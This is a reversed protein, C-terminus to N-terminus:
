FFLESRLTFGLEDQSIIEHQIRGIVNGSEQYLRREIDNIIYVYIDEPIESRPISSRYMHTYRQPTRQHNVLTNFRTSSVLDLKKGKFFRFNNTLSSM